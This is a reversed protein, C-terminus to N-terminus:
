DALVYQKEVEEPLWGKWCEGTCASMTLLFLWRLFFSFMGTAQISDPDIGVWDSESMSPIDPFPHSESRGCVLRYLAPRGNVLIPARLRPFNTVTYQLREFTQFCLFIAGLSLFRGVQLESHAVAYREAVRLRNSEETDWLSTGLIIARVDLTTPKDAGTKRRGLFWLEIKLDSTSLEPIIM